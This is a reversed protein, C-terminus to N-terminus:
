VSSMETDLELVEALGVDPLVDLAYLYNYM